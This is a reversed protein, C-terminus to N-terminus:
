LGRYIDRRNGVDVVMVILRDDQIQYLIRYDGVRVRWLGRGSGKLPIASPPRPDDALSRIRRDVRELDRKPLARMAKIAAPLIEISYKM